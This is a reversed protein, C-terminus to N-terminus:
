IVEVYIGREREELAPAITEVVWRRYHDSATHAQFAAEDVYQEYFMFRRPDTVDQHAVYALCGPEARSLPVMARMAGSVTDEEGPKALLRANVIYM